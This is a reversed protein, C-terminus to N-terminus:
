GLFCHRPDADLEALCDDIADIKRIPVNPGRRSLELNAKNIPSLDPDIQSSILNILKYGVESLLDVTISVM